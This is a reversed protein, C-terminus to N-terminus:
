QIQTSMRSMIYRITSKKTEEKKMPSTYVYDRTIKNVNREHELNLESRIDIVAQQIKVNCLKGGEINAKILSKKMEKYYEDQASTAMFSRQYTVDLQNLINRGCEFTNFYSTVKETVSPEKYEDDKLEMISNDPVDNSNKQSLTEHVINCESESVHKSKNESLTEHM